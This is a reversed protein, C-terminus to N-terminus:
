GASAVPKEPGAVRHMVEGRANFAEVIRVVEDAVAFQAQDTSAGVHHSGYVGEHELLAPKWDAQKDAPQDRWVDLGARVGKHGLAWILAGDDVVKGRSTNIFFAGDRMAEFFARDFMRETEANAAVHVSVADSRRALELLGERGAGAWEVGLAAASHADLSRSWAFIHMGFARAREIVARGIAGTGVVGLTNGCLGRAVSYRKKDWKGAALDAHQEPLRRDLSILHGMAIEAVAVANMGPCNCVSVGAREAAACDINDYGSGARIILKLPGDGAAREIVAAPVKTSRVVLVEAEHASIAGPLTDPGLSPDLAVDAGISALGDIGRQEFKDAILVRM